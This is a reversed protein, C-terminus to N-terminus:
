RHRNSPHEPDSPDNPGHAGMRTRVQRLLEAARPHAVDKLVQEALDLDGNKLAHYGEAIKAEAGIL